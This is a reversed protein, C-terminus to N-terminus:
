GATSTARLRFADFVAISLCLAAVIACAGYGLTEFIPRFLLAGAFVCLYTVCSNLGLIAGRQQPELAIMRGVILTLGLHQMAGWVFSLALLAPYFPAAAGLALYIVTIAGFVPLAARAPGAQDLWPDLRVALGFGIGYSLPMLGAAATSYGLVGQVHAGLFSYYGYFALMFAVAVLLARGIGPVSLATLPSTAPGGSKRPADITRSLLLALLAALTSLTGYVARWDILEALLASLAVGAVLSLTWGTLVTGLTQAERGPPAIHAALAYAAPLALGAGLGALSQALTLAWLAPALASGLVAGCFLILARVLARSPGIRDVQPALLLASLATGLGFAASAVMVNQPATGLQAGVAGAIPSLVLSNAGIVGVTATLLYITAKRM